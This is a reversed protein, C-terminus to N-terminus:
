SSCRRRAQGRQDLDRQRFVVACRHKARSRGRRCGCPRPTPPIRGHVGCQLRGPLGLLHALFDAQHLHDVLDVVFVGAVVGFFDPHQFCREVEILFADGDVFQFAALRDGVPIMIVLPIVLDLEFPRAPGGHQFTMGLQAFQVTISFIMVVVLRHDRAQLIEDLRHDRLAHLANATQFVAVFEVDVGCHARHDVDAHALLGIGRMM